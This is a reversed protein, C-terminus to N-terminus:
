CIVSAMCVGIDLNTQEEDSIAGEEGGVIVAIPLLLKQKGLNLSAEM